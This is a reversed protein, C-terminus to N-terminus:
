IIVDISLMFYGEGIYEANINQQAFFQLLKEELYENLITVISGRAYTQKVAWIAEDISNINM